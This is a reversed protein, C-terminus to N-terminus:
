ACLSVHMDVVHSSESKTNIKLPCSCLSIKGISRFAEEQWISLALWMVVSYLQDGLVASSSQYQGFRISYLQVTASKTYCRTRGKKWCIHNVSQEYYMIGLICLHESLCIMSGRLTRCEGLQQLSALQYLLRVLYVLFPLDFCQSVYNQCVRDHNMITIYVTVCFSYLDQCM